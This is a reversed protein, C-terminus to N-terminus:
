GMGPLVGSERWATAQLPAPVPAGTDRWCGRGEPLAFSSCPTVCFYFESACFYFKTRLQGGDSKTGDQTLYAMWANPSPFNLYTRQM